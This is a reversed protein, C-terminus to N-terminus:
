FNVQRVNAAAMQMLRGTEGNITITIGKNYPSSLHTLFRM